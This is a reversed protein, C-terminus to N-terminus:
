GPYIPEPMERYAERLASSWRERIDQFYADGEAIRWHRSLDFSDVPYVTLDLPMGVSLNSRLTSDMSILGLKIGDNISTGSGLVRDLIPKGYKHEGIQLYPTDPTASIFNGASYIQFLRMTRGALQGGLILSVDFCIGQEKMAPGHVKYVYRVAEGVLSAAEFMSKVTFLTRAQGREDPLGDRVLNVVAQSVALNGASMLVMARDGPRQFLHQKTFCSINDVGANTRTDSLLVLGADLVLAVCYTLPISELPSTPARRAPM